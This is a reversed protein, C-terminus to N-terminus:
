ITERYMVSYVRQESATHTADLYQSQAGRSQVDPSSEQFTDLSQQAPDEKKHFVVAEPSFDVPTDVTALAPTIVTAPAATPQNDAENDIASDVTTFPTTNVTTEVTAGVTAPALTPASFPENEKFDQRAAKERAMRRVDRMSVNPTPETQEQPEKQNAVPKLWRSSPM